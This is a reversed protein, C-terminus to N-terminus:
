GKGKRYKMNVIREKKISSDYVGVRYIQGKELSVRRLLRRPYYRKEGILDFIQESNSINVTYDGIRLAEYDEIIFLIFVIVTSLTVFLWDNFTNGTNLFLLSILIGALAYNAFKLAWLLGGQTLYELQERLPEFEGLIYNFSSATQRQYETKIEMEGLDDYIGYISERGVDYHTYDRLTNVTYNDIHQRVKDNFKKGLHKSLEFLGVLRGTEIALSAKLASVRSWLMSFSITILFGFLFSVVSIMLNLDLAAIDYHNAFKNIILFVFLSPLTLYYLYWNLGKKSIEEEEM